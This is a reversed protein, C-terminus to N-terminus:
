DTEHDVERMRAGCNPCYNHKHDQPCGCLSCRCVWAIGPNLAGPNIDNWRGHVVPVVDAALQRKIERFVYGTNFPETSESLCKLLAEREIYEAM